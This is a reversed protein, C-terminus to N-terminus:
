PWIGVVSILMLQTKYKTSILFREGVGWLKLCTWMLSLDIWLQTSTERPPSSDCTSVCSSRWTSNESQTEGCSRRPLQSVSTLAVPLFLLLWTPSSTHTVDRARRRQPKSQCTPNVSLHFCSSQPNLSYVSIAVLISLVHECLSHLLPTHPTPAYHSRHDTSSTTRTKQTVAPAWVSIFM